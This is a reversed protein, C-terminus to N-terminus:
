KAPPLHPQEARPRRADTPWGPCTQNTSWPDSCPLCSRDNPACTKPYCAPEAVLAALLIIRRM